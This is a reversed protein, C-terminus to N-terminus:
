KKSSPMKNERTLAFRSVHEQPLPMSTNKEDKQPSAKQYHKQTKPTNQEKRADARNKGNGGGFAYWVSVPFKRETQRRVPQVYTM